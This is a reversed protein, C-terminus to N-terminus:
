PRGLNAESSAYKQEEELWDMYDLVVLIDKREKNTLIFDENKRSGSFRVKVKDALGILLINTRLVKDVTLHVWEKIHGGYLVDSEREYGVPIEIRDTDNRLFVLKELFLWSLSEVGCYFMMWIHDDRKGIYAYIACDSYPNGDANDDFVGADNKNWDKYYKCDKAHYWTINEMEDYKSVIKKTLEEGRAKHDAIEKSRKKQEAKKREDEARRAADALKALNNQM